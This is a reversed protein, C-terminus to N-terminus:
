FQYNNWGSSWPQQNIASWQQTSNSNSGIGQLNGYGSLPSQSWSAPYDLSPDYPNNNMRVGASVGGSGGVSAGGGPTTVQQTTGNIINYKNEQYANQALGLAQLLSNTQINTPRTLSELTNALSASLQGYSVAAELGVKAASEASQTAGQQALLARMSSQSTGAGETARTLTGSMAELAQRLQAEVAGKSDAFAAEKTYNSQLARTRETEAERAARERQQEETGDGQLLRILEAIQANTEATGRTVSESGQKVQTTYNTTTQPQSLATVLDVQQRLAREANYNPM